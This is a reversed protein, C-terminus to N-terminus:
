LFPNEFPMPCCAWIKFNIAKSKALLLCIARIKIQLLYIIKIYQAAASM